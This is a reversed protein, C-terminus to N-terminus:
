ERWEFTYASMWTCLGRRQVLSRKVLRAQGRGNRRGGDGHKEEEVEHLDKNSHESHHFM